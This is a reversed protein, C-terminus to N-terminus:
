KAERARLRDQKERYKLTAVECRKSFSDWSEGKMPEPIAPCDHIDFEVSESNSDGPFVEGCADCKISSM